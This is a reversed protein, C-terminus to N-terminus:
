KLSYLADFLQTTSLTATNVYLTEMKGDAFVRVGVRSGNAFKIVLKPHKHTYRGRYDTVYHDEENIVCNSYKAELESKAAAIANKLKIEANKSSNLSEICDKVKAEVTSVKTLYKSQYKYDVGPGSLQMKYGKNSSSWSKYVTHMSVYVKYDGNEITVESRTYDIKSYTHNSTKVNLTWDPGFDALYKKAAALCEADEKQLKAIYSNAKEIEKQLQIQKQLEAEKIALAEQERKMAILEIEAQTLNLQNTM